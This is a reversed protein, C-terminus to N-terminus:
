KSSPTIHANNSFVFSHLLAFQTAGGHLPSNKEEGHHVLFFVTAEMSPSLRKRM